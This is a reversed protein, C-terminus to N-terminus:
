RSWRLFQRVVKFEQGGRAGGELRVRVFRGEPIVPPRAPHDEVVVAAAGDPLGLFSGEDVWGDVERHWPSDLVVRAGPKLLDTSPDSCGALVVAMLVLASGRTSGTVM